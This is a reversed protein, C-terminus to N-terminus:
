VEAWRLTSLWLYRKPLKGPNPALITLRKNKEDVYSVYFFGAINTEALQLEDKDQADAPLDANSVALITNLLIAYNDIKVLSTDSIQRDAGIPLASTPIGKALRAAFTWIFKNNCLLHFLSEGIRRVKVEHFPVSSSYPALEFKPTGYFYERVRKMTWQRM